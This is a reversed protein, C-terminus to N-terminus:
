SDRVWDGQNIDEGSKILSEVESIQGKWAAIMLKTVKLKELIDQSVESPDVRSDNLLVKM